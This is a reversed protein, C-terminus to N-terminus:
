SSKYKGDSFIMRDLIRQEPVDKSPMLDAVIEVYDRLPSAAVKKGLTEQLQYIGASNSMTVHIEIPKTDGKKIEVSEISLASISHIDHKGLDFSLRGRGKTIDAGDAVVVIAAEMTLANEGHDHAYVAHLVQSLVETRRSIDPYIELLLRDLLSKTYIVSFIEHEERHVANGIDHLMCAALVTVYADEESLGLGAISDLEVGGDEVLIDLIRIGNAACIRAHIPGHDNYGLKRVAIFNALNFLTKVEADTQLLHFLKLANPFRSLGAEITKISQEELSTYSTPMNLGYLLGNELMKETMIRGDEYQL